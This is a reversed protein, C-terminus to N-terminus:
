IVLYKICQIKIHYICVKPHLHKVVPFLNLVDEETFPAKTRNDLLYERLQLQIGVKKCFNRLLPVKNFGFKEAAIEVAESCFFLKYNYVATKTIM